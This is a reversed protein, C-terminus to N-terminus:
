VSLDLSRRSLGRWLKRFWVRFSMGERRRGFYSPSLTPCGSILLNFRAEVNSPDHDFAGRWSCTHCEESDVITLSECLPCRKFHMAIRIRQADTRDDDGTLLREVM